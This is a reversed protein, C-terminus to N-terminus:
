NKFFKWIIYETKSKLDFYYDFISRRATQVAFLLHCTSGGCFVSVVYKEEYSQTKSIDYRKYLLLETTSLCRVSNKVHSVPGQKLLRQFHM